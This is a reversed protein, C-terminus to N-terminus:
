PDLEEWADRMSKDLDPFVSCSHEFQKTLDDMYNEMENDGAKRHFKDHVIRLNEGPRQRVIGNFGGCHICTKMKKCDDIIARMVKVNNGSEDTKM